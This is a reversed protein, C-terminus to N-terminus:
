EDPKIKDNIHNSAQKDSLEEIHFRGLLKQLLNISLNDSFSGIFAIIWILEPTQTNATGAFVILGAIVMLYTLVGM